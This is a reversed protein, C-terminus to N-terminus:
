SVTPAERVATTAVTKVPAVAPAEKAGAAVAVEEETVAAHAALAVKAYQRTRTTRFGVLAPAAHSLDLMAPTRSTTAPPLAAGRRHRYFYKPRARRGGRVAFHRDGGVEDARRLWLRFVAAALAVAAAPAVRWLLTWSWVHQSDSPVVVRESSGHSPNHPTAQCLLTHSM